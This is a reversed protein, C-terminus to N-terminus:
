PRQVRVEGKAIKEANRGFELPDMGTITKTPAPAGAGQTGGGKSPKFLHPADTMLGTAWEDMTLPEGTRQSMVPVDGHKAVPKGDVIQWVNLGRVLYDTIAKEDVGVKLGITSLQSELDKRLLAQEAAARDAESKENKATLEAVNAKLPAIAEDLAAQLLKDFDRADGNQPTPPPQNNKELEALRERMKTVEVPDIGDLAQLKVQLDDRERNLARNHDRFDALKTNLAAHDRASVFGDGDVKLHYKGDGREEYEDRLPEPVADLTDVALKLM